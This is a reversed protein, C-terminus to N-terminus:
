ARGSQSMFFGLPLNLHVAGAQLNPEFFQAVHEALDETGFAVDDNLVNQQAITAVLVPVNKEDLNGATPPRSPVHDLDTRGLFQFSLQRGPIRTTRFPQCMVRLHIKGRALHYRGRHGGADKNTWVELKFLTQRLVERRQALDARELVQRLDTFRKVAADIREDVTALLAGRPQIAAKLAAEMTEQQARLERIQDQVVGLMDRDVEILRRKAKDLKTGITTLQRELQKPDAKPTEADIVDRLMQRLRSVTESNMWHQEIADVTYGILEDQHTTNKECIGRESYGSCVYCQYNRTETRGRMACGCKGCKLLGTLLFPGGGEVPTTVGKRATLIDQVIRWTEPDILAPHADPIEIDKIRATGTYVENSLISNITSRGWTGGRPSPIGETNMQKAIARLTAGNRCDRFIGTVLDASGNPVLRRDPGLDYGTPIKGVWCGSEAVRRLGRKVDASL